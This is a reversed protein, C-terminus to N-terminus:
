EELQKKKLRRERKKKKEKLRDLELLEKLPIIMNLIYKTKESDKGSTYEQTFVETQVKESFEKWLKMYIGYQKETLFYQLINIEDNAKLIDRLSNIDKPDIIEIIKFGQAQPIVQAELFDIYNTILDTTTQWLGSSIRYSNVLKKLTPSQSATLNFSKLLNINFPQFIETGKSSAKYYKAPISGRVKEERSEEVLELKMLLKLHHGVGAKTLNLAQSLQSLSLEGHTLLVYLIYLPTNGKQFLKLYESIVRQALGNLGKESAINQAKILLDRAKDFDLEESALKAKLLSSEIYLSSSRTRQAVGELTESLKKLEVRLSKNEVSDLETLLLESLYLMAEITNRFHVIKEEVIQKFLDLAIAKDEVSTSSKLVLAKALRYFQSIEKSDTQESLAQLETIHQDINESFGNRVILRIYSYLVIARLRIDNFNKTIELAKELDTKAAQLNNKEAHLDGFRTFLYGLIRTDGAEESLAISVQYKERAQDLDGRDHYLGGLNLLPIRTGQPNDFTELLQLAKQYMGIAKDFEMQQHYFIAFDNYIATMRTLHGNKKFFTLSEELLPFGTNFDGQRYFIIAIAFLADGILFEDGLERSLSLGRQSFTLALDFDNRVLYFRGKWILLQAERKKVKEPEQVQLEKDKILKEAINGLKLGENLDRLQLLFTIKYLIADIYRLKNNDKQSENLFQETVLLGEEYKAMNFLLDSKLFLCTLYDERSLHELQGLADIKTKADKFKGTRILEEIEEFKQDTIRVM